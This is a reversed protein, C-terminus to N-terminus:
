TVFRCYCHLKYLIYHCTVVLFVHTVKGEGRATGSYTSLELPIDIGLQGRSIFACVEVEGAAENTTYVSNRFEM